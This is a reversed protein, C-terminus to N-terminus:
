IDQTVRLSNLFRAEAAAGAAAAPTLRAMAGPVKEQVLNNAVGIQTTFLSSLDRLTLGCVDAKSSGPKPLNAAKNRRLEYISEEM